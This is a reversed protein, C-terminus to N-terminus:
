GFEEPGLDTEDNEIADVVRKAVATPDHGDGLRPAEGAIPHRSLETETHGPRADIVTIKKRRLERRLASLHAAIAAKSGSYPAMGATPREAVMGTLNVLCGGEEMSCAAADFLFIPLFTNTLYLEEVVDPDTDASMGFAVVGACNVVGDLRGHFRSAQEIAQSAASPLRLDAIFREGPVDLAELRRGTRGTLVLRAGRESLVRAVEGGLGGTAGTVLFVRDAIDM